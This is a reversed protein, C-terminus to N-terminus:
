DIWSYILYAVTYAINKHLIFKSIPYSKGKQKTKEKLFSFHKSLNDSLYKYYAVDLNNWEDRVAEYLLDTNKFNRWITAYQGKVSSSTGTTYM